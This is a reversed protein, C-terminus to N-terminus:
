QGVTVEETKPAEVQQTFDCNEAPCNRTVGHRKTFKELVFPHKCQPCAESVPRNWWVQDCDPYKNCGFFTKGRRSKREVIQGGCGPRPCAVGVEKLKIFRCDPYRSCATFPGFRGHKIALQSSCKPCKEDLLQEKHSEVNGDKDIRIRRTNRCNPYGSCALFPGYRGKRVVMSKGCRECDEKLDEFGNGDAGVEQTNRCEPYGSCAMFKGYRGWKIIMPKSCKQCTQDTPTEETKVNRMQKSARKLDKNFAKNFKDLAKIWDLKGQEIKDLEEEMRATYALDMIDNFNEVLLDNVLFGLETPVFRKKERVTYERNQLTAIITAYTSPRGIGNEELEKVLMAENFRPPPQTFHQKPTISEQRLSQGDKLHPLSRNSSDEQEEEQSSPAPEPDRYVDLFGAFRMVLGSARFLYDGASIDVTTTDFRAPTMQSAVFRSWILQYLKEGDAGLHKRISEPTLEMSSPRIAEHAEQSAKRRAYTNPKSPLYIQGHRNSIHDRVAAMAEDSIRTSDTRMYTILGVTGQEGLDLGEYLRQAVMMTKRVTFGLKKSAEQQLTSTIFPPLPNRKKERKTVKQVNFPAGELDRLVTQSEEATHPVFKKGGKQTVRADFAPPKDAHLRVSISWYEEPKFAQVARERECIVRLAVSQVRGASLGRRVKEWLLPSIKYGVLRDLIRRAQQANVKDLNIKSSNKFAETVAKRTIEQLLVRRLRGGNKKLMQALHWGIAEGERDPDTAVYICSANEALKKLESIVKKRNPLIEYTPKFNNKEDVGLKSKPLDRIHGMSARVVYKSGLFKNITKAKAPSEVIVLSKGM